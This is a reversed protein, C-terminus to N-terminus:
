GVQVPPSLAHRDPEVLSIRELDALTRRHEDFTVADAYRHGFAVDAAAYDKM